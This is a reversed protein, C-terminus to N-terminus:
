LIGTKRLRLYIDATSTGDITAIILGNLPRGEVGFDVHVPSIDSAGAKLRIARVGASDHIVLDDNVASPFYIIKDILIRKGAAIPTGTSDVTWLGTASYETNGM